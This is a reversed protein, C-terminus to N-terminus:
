QLKNGNAVAVSQMPTEEIKCGIEQGNFHRLLQTYERLGCPHTPLTKGFKGTMRMTQFGQAGTLANVYSHPTEENFYYDGNTDEADQQAAEEDQIGPIEILFLQTEQHQM